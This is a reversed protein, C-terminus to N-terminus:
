GASTPKSRVIQLIKRIRAETLKGNAKLYEEFDGRILKLAYRETEIERVTNGLPSACSRPVM